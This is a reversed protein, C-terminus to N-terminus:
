AILRAQTIETFKRGSREVVRRRPACMTEKEQRNEAVAPGPPAASESQNGPTSAGASNSDSNSLRAAKAAPARPQAEHTEEALEDRTAAELPSEGARNGALSADKSSLQVCHGAHALLEALPGCAAPEVAAELDRSGQPAASGSQNSPAGTSVDSGSSRRMAQATGPRPAGRRRKLTSLGVAEAPTVARPKRPPSTAPCAGGTPPASADESPPAASVGPAAQPSGAAGGSAAAPSLLRRVLAAKLGSSDLGAADLKARLDATTLSRYGDAKEKAAARREDTQKRKAQREQERAREILAKGQLRLDASSGAGGIADFYARAPASGARIAACTDAAGAAVARRTTDHEASIHLGLARQEAPLAAILPALKASHKGERTKKGAARQAEQYTYFKLLDTQFQQSETDGAHVRLALSSALKKARDETLDAM